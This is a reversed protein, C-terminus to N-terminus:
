LKWTHASGLRDPRERALAEKWLKDLKTGAYLILESYASEGFDAPPGVVVEAVPDDIEVQDTNDGWDLDEELDAELETDSVTQLGLMSGNTSDSDDLDNYETVCNQCIM